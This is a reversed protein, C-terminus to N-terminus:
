QTSCIFVLACTMFDSQCAPRMRSHKSLSLVLEHDANTRRMRQHITPLMAKEFDCISGRLARRPTSPRVQGQEFHQRAELCGMGGDPCITEARRQRTDRVPFARPLIRRLFVKIYDNVMDVLMQSIGLLSAFQLFPGINGPLRLLMFFGPSFDGPKESTPLDWM